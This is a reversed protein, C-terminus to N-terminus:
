YGFNQKINPNSDVARQPIPFVVVHEPSKTKKGNIVSPDDQNLFSEFRIQDNRRWGEWYLEKRREILLTPLDASAALSAGRTTRILNLLSLPSDGLTASGGRNIAEAKMLLLDAYRFFVYDNGGNQNDIYDPYPKKTDPDVTGAKPDTSKIPEPLYKIVRIGNRENSYLLNVEKTFILPKGARDTLPYLKNAIISYQQTQLLGARLGLLDTM